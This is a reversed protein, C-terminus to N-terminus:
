VPGIQVLTRGGQVVILNAFAVGGVGVLLPWTRRVLLRARVGTLPLAALEIALLVAPTVPDLTVLLGATVIFAAAVKAVPNRRALAAERDPALPVLLSM